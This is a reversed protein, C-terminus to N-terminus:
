LWVAQLSLEVVDGKPSQLKIYGEGSLFPKFKANVIMNRAIENLTSYAGNYPQASSVVDCIGGSKKLVRYKASRETASVM